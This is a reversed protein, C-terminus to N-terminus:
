PNQYEPRLSLPEVIRFGDLEIEGKSKDGAYMDTLAGARSVPDFTPNPIYDWRRGHLIIHRHGREDTVWFLERRRHDPLHRTFADTTEYLHSDADYMRYPLDM